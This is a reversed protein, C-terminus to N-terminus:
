CFLMFMVGVIHFCLLAFQEKGEQGIKKFCFNGIVLGQTFNVASKPHM